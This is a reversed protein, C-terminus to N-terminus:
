SRVRWVRRAASRRLRARRVRAMVIGAHRCRGERGGFAGEEFFVALGRTLPREGHGRGGWGAAEEVPSAFGM